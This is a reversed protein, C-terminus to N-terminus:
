KSPQSPDATLARCVKLLPTDNFPYRLILNGGKFQPEILAMKPLQRQTLFRNNDRSILMWHRDYFFGWKSIKATWDAFSLGAPVSVGKCSKIPYVFLEKIHPESSVPRTPITGRRRCTLFSSRLIVRMFVVIFVLLFVPLLEVTNSSMEPLYGLLGANELYTEVPGPPNPEEHVQKAWQRAWKASKESGAKYFTEGEVHLEDDGVKYGSQVRQQM